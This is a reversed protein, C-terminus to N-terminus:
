FAEERSGCLFGLSCYRPDKFSGKFSVLSSRHIKWFNSVTENTARNKSNIYVNVQDEYM